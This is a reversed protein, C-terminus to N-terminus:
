TQVRCTYHCCVLLTCSPGVCKKVFPHYLEDRVYGTVCYALVTAFLLPLITTGAMGGIISSFIVTSCAPPVLSLPVTILDGHRMIFKMLSVSM